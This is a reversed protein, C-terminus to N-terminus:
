KNKLYAFCYFIMMATAVAVGPIFILTVRLLYTFMNATMMEMMGVPGVVIMFTLYPIYAIFVCLFSILGM